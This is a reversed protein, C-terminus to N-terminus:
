PWTRRFRLELGSTTTGAYASVTFYRSLVYEIRLANSALEIGQEYTVYLRDSIRKGVAVVQGALPDARTPTGRQLFSIDDVGINQAFRQTLTRGDRGALAAQAAQLAVMERQSANGPPGGTLLWSLKESDPVPPNSTLRVVPARMTGTIEVGAEVAVDKRLAVIDLAPNAVPGDFILRGRDIALKQGFAHYTGRATRITGKAVLPEGRHSTLQLRGALRTDLGEASFRFDRGFEIALEVDLPADLGPVDGAARAPRPRGVVVIDDALATDSTSRYAIVGEDIAVRGALLWRKEERAITGEGDVILRRDPHNLARFNEARWAIRTTGIAGGRERPLAITGTATFRGEGGSFAFEELRLGEPGSVVRLRGDALNVGYQPMDIRLAYGVIQGTFGPEGLTGALNAEAIAQGQVRAGTGIWPQLTALSPLHARVTGGLAAARDFPHARGAPADLTADVLANGALRARVEGSVSMRPGDIRAVLKLTELGLAIRAGADNGPDDVYVDGREREIAITGKWEPTSVIDWRGNAVVDMPWRTELGAQRAIPAVALGGFRGSTTLQGNRWAFSDVEVLAGGGDIRAAGVVVRDQALEVDAPRALVVRSLGPVGEAILSQVRGQWRPSTALDALAGAARVDISRKDQTVALALTHSAASGSLTVKVQDLRGRPAVLGTAAADVNADAIAEISPAALPADHIGRANVRLTALSWDDVRLKEGRGEVAFAAGRERPEIHIRADLAGAVKPADAPLLPGLEALQSSVLTVDLPQGRRHVAGRATLRTAGLTLRMDVGEAFTEAFRGRVRGALPLGALRSGEAFTAEVQAVPAPSLTGEAHLTGDVAGAPFAGFRSPDFDRASVEASFAREGDFRIRASGALEGARSHAAFREAVLTTGDYRAAFALKLDGQAVDGAIRQVSGDVDAEISGDLKTARLSSHLQALDLASVALKWRNRWGDLEITGAGVLTANGPARAQLARLELM